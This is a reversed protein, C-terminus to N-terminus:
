ICCCVILEELVHRQLRYTHRITAGSVQQQKITSQPQKITIKQITDYRYVDFTGVMGFVEGWTVSKVAVASDLNLRRPLFAKPRTAFRVQETM